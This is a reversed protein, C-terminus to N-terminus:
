RSWNAKDQLSEVIYVTINLKISTITYMIHFTEYREQKWKINMSLLSQNSMGEAQM